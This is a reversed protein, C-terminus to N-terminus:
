GIAILHGRTRVIILGDSIAPTAMCVEGVTNRALLEFRPGAKIVHIDGDESTFYIKGGAAVPSATFGGGEGLRQQYQRVGTKADYVSLVGNDRCNYLLGDYVLPTQMYAGERTQFWALHRSPADGPTITGRAGAKIAYIPAQKGHANTIYILGDAVVPTPVPIDGGGELRWLERGTAFDYGGIHKWGNVIIEAGSPTRHVSPTSWTPVDHRAARWLERGDRVDFAALFSGKQVDAQVIVRGDHIIPSSAFGWQAEPVMFFGSDLVGLNKKWLLAGTALEYAYLGESGFMAVLVRGDTAPTSNAHTSKPHRRVKPVGKAATREWRVRGTLRDLCYVKWTHASEDRVPEIDGYLGVKLEPDAQGSIATTVCVLDGWVIPSSHGLGPIPTRWKVGRGSPVDWSTPPPPGESIGRAGIGRFQPWDRAPSPADIAAVGHLSACLLLVAALPLRM